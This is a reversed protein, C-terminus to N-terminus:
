YGEPHPTEHDVPDICHYASCSMGNELVVRDTTLDIYAIRSHLFKCDCVEDGPKLSNVWEIHENTSIFNQM